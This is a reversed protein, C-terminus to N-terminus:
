GTCQALLVVGGVIGLLYLFLRLPLERERREEEAKKKAAEKKAWYEKELQAKKAEGEAKTKLWLQHHENWLDHEGSPTNLWIRMAMSIQWDIQELQSQLINYERDDEFSDEDEKLLANLQTYRGAEYLKVRMEADMKEFGDGLKVIALDKLYDDRTYAM